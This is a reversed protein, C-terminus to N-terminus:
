SFVTSSSASTMEGAHDTITPYAILLHTKIRDVKIAIFLSL